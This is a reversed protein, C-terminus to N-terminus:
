QALARDLAETLDAASRPEFLEGNLFFTPTGAVGLARGDAIDREIRELTEPAEYAADWTDMDLGLEQAYQRFLDDKPEQSEGWQAQTEFMRAYMAELQGQQAAAEVARAARQSNFHSDLPFYRIVFSVRDGYQSRLEEIAPYVAGCAECEFDLFEVFTVSSDPVDNLRRSDERVVLGAQDPAQPDGATAPDQSDQWPRAVVIAVAIVTVLVAALALILPARRQPRPTPGQPRSGPKAVQAPKASRNSRAPKASKRSKASRTRKPTM